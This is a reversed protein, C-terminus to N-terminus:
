AVADAPAAPPTASTGTIYATKWKEEGSHQKLLEFLEDGTIRHVEDYHIHTMPPLRQWNKENTLAAHTALVVINKDAPVNLTSLQGEHGELVAIGWNELKKIVPLLTTFIDNTPAILLGRYIQHDKQCKAFTLIILTLLAITKGTGTPWQVIGNYKANKNLIEMYVEWLETQIRRPLKGKPIFTEFFDDQLSVVSGKQKMRREKLQALLSHYKTYANEKKVAYVRAQENIQAIEAPTYIKEIHLGLKPFEERVVQHFLDNKYMFETSGTQNVLYKRMERLLPLQCDNLEEAIALLREDRAVISFLKDYETYPLQYNATACIKYLCSYTLAYSHQESSNHIRQEPHETFGFKQKSEHEWDPNEMLYM